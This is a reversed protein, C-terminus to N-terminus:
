KNYYVKLDVRRNKLRGRETANTAIPRLEGFGIANVQDERLNLGDVLYRAVATARKESLQLNYEESGKSDTHGEVVIRSVKKNKFIGVIRAIEKKSSEVLRDTDFIFNLNKIRITENPTPPTKVVVEVRVIQRHVDTIEIQARGPALPARYFAQPSNVTGRGRILKLTYPGVGGKIKYHVVTGEFVEAFEPTVELAPFVDEAAANEETDDENPMVNAPPVPPPPTKRDTGSLWGPNFYYVVGAFVRWRPSLTELGPEFSGGWDFNLNRLLRHKFGLLIDASSADMADRYPRKVAPYSFIGELV